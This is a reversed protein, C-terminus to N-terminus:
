SLAQKVRKFVERINPDQLIPNKLRVKGIGAGTYFGIKKEVHWAANVPLHRDMMGYLLPKDMAAPAFELPLNFAYAATYGHLFPV